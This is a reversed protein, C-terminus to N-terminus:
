TLNQTLSIVKEKIKIIEDRDFADKSIGFFGLKGGGEYAKGSDVMQRFQDAVNNKGKGYYNLTSHNYILLKNTKGFLKDPIPSFRELTTKIIVLDNIKISSAIDMEAQKEEEVTVGQVKRDARRINDIEEQTAGMKKMAPIYGKDNAAVLQQWPDLKVELLEAVQEISAPLHQFENHHDILKCGPIIEGRLEIGYVQTKCSLAEEISALYSIGKYAEWIANNWDLAADIYPIELSDLIKIIEVMELDHGGILFLFNSSYAM